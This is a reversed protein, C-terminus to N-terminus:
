KHIFKINELQNNEDIIEAIYIGSLLKKVDIKIDKQSYYNKEFVKRGDINYIKISKINNDSKINLFNSTPNPYYSYNLSYNDDTSLVSSFVLTINPYSNIAPGILPNDVDFVNYDDAYYHTVNNEPESNLETYEFQEIEDGNGYGPEKANVAIVLNDTGNYNFDNEFIFSATKTTGDFVMSGNDIVKTLTSVDVWDNEDQFYSKQVHGIWVDINDDAQPFGEGIKIKYRLENIIGSMNIDEAKYITQYYSYCRFTNIPGKQYSTFESTGISVEISGTQSYISYATLIVISLFFKKM